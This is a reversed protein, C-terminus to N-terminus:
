GRRAVLVPAGTRKGTVLYFAPLQRNYMQQATVIRLEACSRRRCRSVWGEVLKSRVFGGPKHGVQACRKPRQQSM